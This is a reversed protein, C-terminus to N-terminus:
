NNSPIETGANENSRPQFIGSEKMTKIRFPVTTSVWNKEVWHRWKLNLHSILDFTFLFCVVVKFMNFRNEANQANEATGRPASHISKLKM